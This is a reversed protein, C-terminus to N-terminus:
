VHACTYTQVRVYPAVHTGLACADICIYSYIRFDPHFSSPSQPTDVSYQFLLQLSPQPTCLRYFSHQNIYFVRFLLKQRAHSCWACRWGSAGGDVLVQMLVLLLVM